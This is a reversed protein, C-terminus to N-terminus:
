FRDNDRLERIYNDIDETTEFMKKGRGMFGELAAKKREKQDDAPVATIRVRQGKSFGIDGDTIIRDGNYYGYITQLM